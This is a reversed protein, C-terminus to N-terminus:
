RRVFATGAKVSGFPGQQPTLTVTVGRIPNGARDTFRVSGLWHNVGNVVKFVVVNLGARLTVDKVVGVDPVYPSHFNNRYVPQGNLYVKSEDDSGVKMQLETQETESTIYCVAYAVAYTTYEGILEEFDILYDDMQVTRWAIEHEGFRVRQGPGPQIRGEGEIQEMDLATATTMEPSLPIPALVLWQKIAGPDRGRLERKSDFTASQDRQRTERLRKGAHEAERWRLVQEPSAAEWLDPIATGSAALIWRGDPSFALSRVRDGHAKFGLVERGSTADWVKVTAARSGAIIRRGDGAVIRQGDPSYAVSQIGHTLGRLTLLLDGTNADWVSCTKDHSGTLIRRGDPSFAVASVRDRHGKLTREVQGSDAHWVKATQDNSGTVIRSGDPSVAASWVRDGHGVLTHILSGSSADWVRATKDESATIIKTGDAWYAVSRIGGTHGILEFMERGTAADWVKATQDWSGTVVRRGDPSITVSWIRDKHGTLAHLEKGTVADWIRATDDWGGSVIHSGDKSYAVASVIFAGHGPGVFHRSPQSVEWVKVTDDLSATVVRRGDPSFAASWIEDAHGKLTLREEGSVADWVKATLDASCTLIQQGDTSFCVSKIRNDHVLTLLPKGGEKAEWVKATGDHSGTIIRGGDPSFAASYVWNHHGVLTFLSRGSGADWVRATGDAGGTLIRTGDPSYSVSWVGDPHRLELRQRGESAEWVRATWDLSGTVIRRGDPSFAVSWLPAAHGALTLLHGGTQSDWVTATGHVSALAVRKGGPSFAVWTVGYPLPMELAGPSPDNITFFERGTTVEWVKATQDSSGTVIRQGDPSFALAVVDGTHGRLTKLDLRSQRQWFYWEFGRYPSDSTADLLQQFRDVYNHEWAQQTLIMNAAYLSHQADIRQVAERAQALRAKDREHQAALRQRSEAIRSVDADRRAQEAAWALWVSVVVGVMLTAAVVSVVTYAVKNRRWAKQIKYVTSPPRAVVPQDELHRKLDSALGDATDYRRTRDKELCKMVIWDLDGRLLNRLKPPDTKRRSSIATLEEGILTSVRTSPRSPEEERIRRRVEEPSVSLLDQTDLPTKGTLLEYLLVGLSYIDSRTDIDLGSMEAQEPSMYAPTGIFEQLHTYITKDTLEQQTAKAIGFDIIKPVPVGDQLAVLINSPKLDRHIIGKQHAHQIAHCVSIFLDLRERAPLREQDCYCTIPIGRVLEMVFYPRGSDTTGADLVKAINAHDMMALAQREAEFRGIVQKSDMGPKIIKLAVRRVVPSRQRAAYVVGFGGEGIKELLKYRGITQGPQEILSRPGVARGALFWRPNAQDGHDAAAPYSIEDAAGEPGGGPKEPRKGERDTGLSLIRDVQEPSLGHVSKKAM